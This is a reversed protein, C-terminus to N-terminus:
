LFVFLNILEQFSMSYVLDLENEGKKLEEELDSEMIDISEYITISLEKVYGIRNSEANFKYMKRSSPHSFYCCQSNGTSDKANYLLSLEMDDELMNMVYTITLPEDLNFQLITVDDWEEDSTLKNECILRPLLLPALSLFKRVSKKM